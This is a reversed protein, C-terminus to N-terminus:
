AQSRPTPAPEAFPDPPLAAKQELAAVKQQLAANETELDNKQRILDLNEAQVHLQAGRSRTRRNSDIVQGTLANAALLNQAGMSLGANPNVSGPAIGSPAHLKRTCHQIWLGCGALIGALPLALLLSGSAFAVVTWVGTALAAVVGFARLYGWGTHPDTKVKRALLVGVSIVAGLLLVAPAGLRQLGFFFCIVGFIALAIYGIAKM